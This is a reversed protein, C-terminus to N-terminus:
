IQKSNAQMSSQHAAACTMTHEIIIHCSKTNEVVELNLLWQENGGQKCNIEEENTDLTDPQIYRGKLLGNRKAKTELFLSEDATNQKELLISHM